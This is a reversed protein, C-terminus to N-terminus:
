DKLIWTLYCPTWPRGSSDDADVTGSEPPAPTAVAGPGNRNGGTRQGRGLGESKGPSDDDRLTCVRSVSLSPGTCSQQQQDQPDRDSRLKGTEATSM